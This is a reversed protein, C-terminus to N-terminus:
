VEGSPWALFRPWQGLVARFLEEVSDILVRGLEHLAPPIWRREPLLYSYDIIKIPTQHAASRRANEQDIWDLIRPLAVITAAQVDHLLLIARGKLTKLHTIVYREIKAANRLRWDQPDIDWGIPHIGLGALTASLSKCHAGYPTRFLDPRMGTASEILAANEEIEQAARKSYVRGCLFYHHVTHNGVAHGRRLEEKLLERAAQAAPRDGQFHWGNVFFVAKYGHRELLELVKPTKDVAPGDDFTFLVEPDGTPAAGAPRVAGLLVLLASALRV